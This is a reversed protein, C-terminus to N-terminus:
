LRCRSAWGALGVYGQSRPCFFVRDQKRPVETRARTASGRARWRVVVLVARARRRFLSFPCYARVDAGTCAIVAARTESLVLLLVM